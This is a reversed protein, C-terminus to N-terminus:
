LHDSGCRRMQCIYKFLLRRNYIRSTMDLRIFRVASESRCKDGLSSHLKPCGIHTSWLQMTGRRWFLWFQGKLFLTLVEWLIAQRRGEGRRLSIPLDNSDSPISEVIHILGGFDASWYIRELKWPNDAFDCFKGKYDYPSFWLFQFIKKKRPIKRSKTPPM